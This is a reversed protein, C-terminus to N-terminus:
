QSFSHVLSSRIRSVEDLFKLLLVSSERLYRIHQGILIADHAERLQHIEKLCIADIQAGSITTTVSSPVYLANYGYDTKTKVEETGYKRRGVSSSIVEKGIYIAEYATAYVLYRPVYTFDINEAYRINKYSHEESNVVNGDADIDEKLILKGRREQMSTNMLIHAYSEEPRNM